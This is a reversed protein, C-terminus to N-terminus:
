IIKTARKTIETNLEKFNFPKQFYKIILGESLASSIEPIIDYGSLIYYSNKPFLTKAKTIFEIGNMKPMKMDSIVVSIGLEKNLVNLGEQGSAATYVDFIKEFNIRFFQINISEDDVYLIKAKSDM